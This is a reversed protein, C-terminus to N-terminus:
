WASSPTPQPGPPGGWSDLVSKAAAISSEPADLAVEIRTLISAPAEVLPLQKALGAAFEIQALEGRCRECGALHARIREMRPAPLRADLYAALDDSVHRRFMTM